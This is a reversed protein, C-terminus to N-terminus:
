IPGFSALHILARAKNLAKVEPRSLAWGDGKLNSLLEYNGRYCFLNVGIM